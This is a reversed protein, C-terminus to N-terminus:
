EQTTWCHGHHTVYLEQEIGMVNKAYYDLAEHVATKISALEPEDFIYLNESILNTQNNVMKLNKIFAIQEDSIASKISARFVPEIFLPQVDPNTIYTM